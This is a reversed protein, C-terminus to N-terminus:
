DDNDVKEWRDGMDSDVHIYSSERDIVIDEDDYRNKVEEVREDFTTNPLVEDPVREEPSGYSHEYGAYASSKGPESPDMAAFPKIDLDWATSKDALEANWPYDTILTINPMIARIENEIREYLAYKAKCWRTRNRYDHKEGACPGGGQCVNWYKCGQCGGMDPADETVWGPTNKLMEYREDSNDYENGSSDGQLFPVGDGVKGWTKGCGTTEGNGKVIKAAGANFVDCKNNVCNTLQNGLLNDVYERMPGWSRYTEEKMWEWARLYHQKLTDQDLAIDEGDPVDEYPIAPNFHGTVGNSCLWDMWDLLEEFTEEDGANTEHLVTIIGTSVNNEICMEIAEHTKESMKETARGGTDEDREGAAKREENLDPPGDCSIGVHVNYEKFMEIHDEDMLTGNTQIHTKRNTTDYNENVWSFIRELHEKRVLLPEGGHMGPLTDPYKEKWEELKDMIAEIDYQRDVWEQKRERDPNEYCYTCGLNCGTM